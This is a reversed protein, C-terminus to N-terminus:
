KKRYIHDIKKLAAEYDFKGTHESDNHCATCTEKKINNLGNKLAKERDKMISIKKYASGPGHCTECQVAEFDAADADDIKYGGKGFATAHCALCKPNKAEGKAKISEFAKAHKSSLWKEYVNGKKEGKHCAKCKNAGVYEFDGAFTLSLTLSLVVAIVISKKM